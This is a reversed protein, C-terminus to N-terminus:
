LEQRLSLLHRRILYRAKGLNGDPAIVVALFTEEDLNRFVLTMQDLSVITESVAGGNLADNGDVTLDVIAHQGQEGHLVQTLDKADIQLSVTDRGLGYIVAPVLGDRRTRGAAGKGASERVAANLKLMEM